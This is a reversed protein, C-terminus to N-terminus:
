LKGAVTKSLLEPEPTLLEQSDPGIQVDFNWFCSDTHVSTRTM